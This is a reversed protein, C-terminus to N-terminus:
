RGPGKDDSHVIDAPLVNRAEEEFRHLEEDVTLRGLAAKAQQYHDRAMEKQGDRWMAMALFVHGTAIQTDREVADAIKASVAISKTLAQAAAKYDGRRYQAIGLTSHYTPRGEPRLALAKTALNVAEDPDRVKADSSVVLLCALNNQADALAGRELDGKKMGYIRERAALEDRFLKIAEAPRNHLYFLEALHKRAKAVEKLSAIDPEQQRMIYDFIKDAAKLMREIAEGAGEYSQKLRRRQADLDRNEGQLRKELGELQALRVKADQLDLRAKALDKEARQRDADAKDSTGKTERLRAVEAKADNLEKTIRTSEAQHERVAAEARKDATEAAAREKVAQARAEAIETRLQTLDPSTQAAPQETPVTVAPNEPKAERDLSIPGFALALAAIVAFPLVASVLVMTQHRRAFRAARATVPERRALVPEDDLWRRLDAALDRASAYRERAPRAMAKLCIAELAPPVGKKVEHPKPFKGQVVLSVVESRVKVHAFPSRGTLMCYLTAGLSYVDSAPGLRDLDGAAQEPSMFALTGLVEGMRTLSEKNGPVVTGEPGSGSEKLSKALGWDIVVTDGDPGLMINEPKLDRHVVRSDHEHASAVAHCVDIFRALLERLTWAKEGPARPTGPPLHLSQIASRLSVGQVYRMAYFLRGEANRGLGLIPVIGAHGLRATLKAERLFRAQSDPDDAYREQIEKLIVKRDLEEDLAVYLKGLNGEIESLIRYRPAGAIIGSALGASPGGVKAGGAAAVRELCARVEVSGLQALDDLLAAFGSLKALCKEPRNGHRQLNRQMVGELLPLDDDELCGRDHLLDPFSATPDALWAHLAAILADRSLLGMQMALIGFLLPQDVTAADSNRTAM